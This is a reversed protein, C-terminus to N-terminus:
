KVAEIRETCHSMLYFYCFRFPIFDRWRVIVSCEQKSNMVATECRASFVDEGKAREGLRRLFHCKNYKKTNKIPDRFRSFYNSQVTPFPTLTWPLPPVRLCPFFGGQM